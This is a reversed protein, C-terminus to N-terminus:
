CLFYNSILHKLYIKQHNYVSNEPWNYLYTDFWHIMEQDYWLSIMKLLYMPPLILDKFEKSEFLTKIWGIVLIQSKANTRVLICPGARPLEITSQKLKYETEDTLDLIFIKKSRRRKYGFSHYGGAIIVYNEDFSLISYVYKYNFHM